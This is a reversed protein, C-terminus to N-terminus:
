AKLHRRRPLPGCKPKGGVSHVGNAFLVEQQNSAAINLALRQQHEKSVNEQQGAPTILEFSLDNKVYVLGCGNLPYDPMVANEPVILYVESAAKTRILRELRTGHYLVHEIRRIKQLCERYAPNKSVEYNWDSFETFLQSSDRLGPETRRIEQELVEREMRALKLSDFLKNKEGEGSELESQIQAIATRTIRGKEMWFAAADARCRGGAAADIALGSPQLSALFALAARKMQKPTLARFPESCVTEPEPEPEPETPEPETEVPEPEAPAPEGCEAPVDAAPAPTVEGSPNQAAQDDASTESSRIERLFEDMEEEESLEPEFLGPTLDDKVKRDSADSQSTGSGSFDEFDFFLQNKENSDPM